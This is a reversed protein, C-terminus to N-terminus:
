SGSGLIQSRRLVRGLVRRLWGAALLELSQRRARELARMSGWALIIAYQPTLMLPPISFFLAASDARPLMLSFGIFFVLRYTQRNFKSTDGGFRYILYNCTQILIQSVLLLVGLITIPIALAFSFTKFAHLFPFVYIRHQPKLTNFVFFVGYMALLVCLWILYNDVREPWFATGVPLFIGMAGLALAWCWARIRMGTANFTVAERTLTPTKEKKAAKHDNDYYGLEYVSYFSVFLFALSFWNAPSFQYALLLLLFDEKLIQSSFYRRKSYKGQVAYRMPLYLRWFAKPPYPTWEILFSRGIYDFLPADERSDTVFLSKELVETPLVECLADVKGCKRLNMFRPFAACCILRSKFPLARALPAVLHHMGFSIITIEAPQAAVVADVLPQNIMNRLRRKVTLAWYPWSWPLLLTVLLVRMFDRWREPKCLGFRGAAGVVSDALMCALFALMQPRTAKLFRETSNDLIVTHDFDLVVHPHARDRLAQLLAAQETEAERKDLRKHGALVAETDAALKGAWQHSLAEERARWFEEIPKAAGDQVLGALETAVTYATRRGPGNSACVLEESLLWGTYQHFRRLREDFDERAAAARVASELQAPHQAEYAIGKGALMDNCLLLVPKGHAMAVFELGSGTTAVIDAWEILRRFDYDIVHLGPIEEADFARELFSPHPKFITLGQHARALAKAAEFSDLYHPLTSQRDEGDAPVFGLTGDDPPFFVIRPRMSAYPDALLQQMAASEQAQAYRNYVDFAMQELYSRGLPEYKERLERPEALSELPVGALRSHGVLGKEVFWTSPFVAREILMAPIDRARCLDYAMGTHPCLTNWSLLLDPKLLELTQWTLGALLRLLAERDEADCEQKPLIAVRERWKEADVQALASDAHADLNRYFQRLRGLRWNHPWYYPAFRKDYVASWVIAAHGLQEIALALDLLFQVEDEQHPALHAIVIRAM